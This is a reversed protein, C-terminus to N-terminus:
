NNCPLFLFGERCLMRTIELVSNYHETKWNGCEDIQSFNVYEWSQDAYKAAALYVSWDQSYTFRDCIRSHLFQSRRPAAENRPICLDFKRTCHLHHTRRTRVLDLSLL